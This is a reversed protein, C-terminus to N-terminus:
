DFSKENGGHLDEEKGKEVGEMWEITRVCEDDVKRRSLATLVKWRVGYGEEAKPHDHNNPHGCKEDSFNEVQFIM